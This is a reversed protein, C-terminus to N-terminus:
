PQDLTGRVAKAGRVVGLRLDRRAQAASEADIRLQHVITSIEHRLFAADEGTAAAPAKAGREETAIRAGVAVGRHEIRAGMGGLNACEEHLGSMRSRQSLSARSRPNERM